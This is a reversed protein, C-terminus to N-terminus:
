EGRDALVYGVSRVTHILRRGFPYDVKGRLRNVLVELVNTFSDFSMDWVAETIASRTVVTGSRRLLIELLAFERPTLDIDKGARTVRRTAPDLRLDACELVPPALRSSRRLLARIRALLESFDFPKVLYDDAGLDLGTIKDQSRDRATLCLVPTSNGARRLARVVEFGSKRPLMIDLLVLDYLGSLALHEGDEGDYALDVAYGNERLGGAVFSALRRDDEVFLIRM